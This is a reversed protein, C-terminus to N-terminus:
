KGTPNEDDTPQSSLEHDAHRTFRSEPLPDSGAIELWRSIAPTDAFGHEAMSVALQVCHWRLLPIDDGTGQDERDYQLEEALSGLGHLVLDRIADKQANTGNDFIWKAMQLAADLSTKRRNTIIIGIEHILVDPPPQTRSDVDSSTVAWNHLGITAARAVEESESALGKQILLILEPLRHQPLAKVLGVVLLSGPMEADNLTQVRKYLKDGISEPLNIETLISQLGSIARLIPRQYQQAFFPIEHHIAHYPIETDLWRAVVDTLYSTDDDSLKLPQQSAKLGRIAGGVQWLIDAPELSDSRARNNPNLWKHRFRLEAITSDPAPLLIFEWDRLSTEGPLGDSDTYAESWLAQAIQPAQAETLQKHFAKSTVRRSARKRAEGGARLGRVLLSLVEQQRGENATTFVPPLLDDDLLEGPDPYRYQLDPQIDMNLGVIPAGLLDFIFTARYEKPLAEWSRTLLNRIPDAMWSHRAITETQYYALSRRLVEQVMEPELRLVLRSLVELAVRLREEAAIPWFPETAMRPIAYEIIDECAQALKSALDEPMAAVRTRSLVQTLAPDQDYNSIRLILRAALEPHPVALIQAALELLHSDATALGAIEYLRVARHAAIWRNYRANSFAYSEGQRGGLDFPIRKARQPKGTLDEEYRRLDESSDCKLPALETSRDDWETFSQPTNAQNEKPQWRRYGEEFIVVLHLAWGERSPGTLSRGDGPNERIASLMQNLLQISEEVRNVELLLAAKRLMWVPDCRETHWNKLLSELNRFDLHYAAWLCHEHHIRQAIDPHDHLFPSLAAIREDFTNQDFRYRATTVLALMVSSWAHRVSTWDVNPDKAGNITQHQCNIEALTEAASRELDPVIPELMIERRWIIEFIANLREVLPFDPLIRLLVKEWEETDQNMFHRRRSKVPVALWGPYMKRNHEWAKLTERGTAALKEMNDEPSPSPTRPVPEASVLEEVPEIEPPITWHSKDSPEPWKTLNYPRGRELTNLLWETAYHHHLLKPWTSSQPHHALDIPVVNRDELMRRRHPSLDLYGALYIKPAAKGLNDRVWGSWQLFNPDDGSFGILCFITEMMAQQVTNVFPAFSSPYTRYDEETCILPFQAPLSGHLKIIRPRSTLPIEDVTRIVGYARKPVSKRTKELLTDWNTTFVDRWPMGLLRIHTNGPEFDDDRVTQRIFYHLDSRGFATEYEQAIRLHGDTGGTKHPYLRRWMEEVVDIWLPPDEAGPRIRTANKSFGSGIMVSAGGGFGQWLADRVRNIHSQDPFSM